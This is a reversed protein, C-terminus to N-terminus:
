PRKIGREIFLQNCRSVLDSRFASEYAIDIVHAKAKIKLALFTDLFVEDVTFSVPKKLYAFRSTVIVEHIIDQAKQVDNDYAIYFYTIVMMDLEGFNSSSVTDNIFRSNPITVFDNDLTRLKVSRLGISVIDGYVDDFKVRDGVKFPSDFLLFLGAIVSAAVDKLAFGLAVAASGTAAILLEKPPNIVQVFLLVSGGLYVIFNLLTNIQLIFFKKSPLRETINNAVMSILQALLWLAAIGIALLLLKNLSLLSSISSPDAFLDNTDM